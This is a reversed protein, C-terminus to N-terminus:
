GGAGASGVGTAFGPILTDQYHATDLLAIGIFIGLFLFACLFVFANFPRDWRLHMFYLAVLLAKVTAIALGIWINLSGLDFYTATVTLWTGILLAIWVVVLLRVSSVHVGNDTHEAM